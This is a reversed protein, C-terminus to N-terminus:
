PKEHQVRNTVRELEEDTRLPIHVPFLNDYSNLSANKEVESVKVSRSMESTINKYTLIAHHEESFRSDIFIHM